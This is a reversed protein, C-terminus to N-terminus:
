KRRFKYAGKAESLLMPESERKPTLTVRVTAGLVAALRPEHRPELLDHRARRARSLIVQRWAARRRTAENAEDGYGLVPDDRLQKLAPGARDVHGNGAVQPGAFAGM